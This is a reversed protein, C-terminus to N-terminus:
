RRTSAKRRLCPGRSRPMDPDHALHRGANRRLGRARHAGQRHAARVSEEPVDCEMHYLLKHEFFIVPDNSRMAAILLGKATYADSPVVGKLGPIHAM